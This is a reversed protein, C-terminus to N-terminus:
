RVLPARAGALRGVAEPSWPGPTIVVAHEIGLEALRACREAFADAPEDPEVAHQGDGRDGRVATRGRRLPPAPGRAQAPHDRGRGPPRLPQLRGRLARRPPADPARGHRRVLIPPHPAAPPLPHNLPDELMEADPHSSPDAQLLHDSVWVTALAGDGAARAVGALEARIATPGGSWSSNTVALGVRM